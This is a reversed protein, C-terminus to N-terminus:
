EPCARSCARPRVVRVHISVFAQLRAVQRLGGRDFRDKDIVGRHAVLHQWALRQRMRLKLLLALRRQLFNIGPASLRPSLRSLFYTVSDLDTLRYLTM